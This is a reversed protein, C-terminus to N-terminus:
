QVAVAIVIDGPSVRQGLLTARETAKKSGPEGRETPVLPSQFLSCRAILKVQPQGFGRWRDMGVTDLIERVTKEGHTTVLTSKATRYPAVLYFFCLSNTELTAITEKPLLFRRFDQSEDFVPNHIQSVVGLVDEVELRKSRSDKVDSGAVCAVAVTITLFWFRLARYVAQTRTM